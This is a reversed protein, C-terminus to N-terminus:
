KRAADPFALDCLAFFLEARFVAAALFLAVFCLVTVRGGLFRADFLRGARLCDRREYCGRTGRQPRSARAPWASDGAKRSPMCDRVGNHRGESGTFEFRLVRM